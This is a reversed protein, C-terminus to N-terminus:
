SPQITIPVYAPNDISGPDQPLLMIYISGTLNDSIFNLITQITCSNWALKCIELLVAPKKKPPPPKTM